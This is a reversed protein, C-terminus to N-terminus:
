RGGRNAVSKGAMAKRVETVKQVSLWSRLLYGSWKLAEGNDAYPDSSNDFNGSRSTPHVDGNNLLTGNWTGDPRRAVVEGYLDILPLKYKRAVAVFVANYARALDDKKVHPPITSLVPITGRYAQQPRGDDWLIRKVIEEYDRGVEEPKRGASADNTGLMLIVMQPKYNDLMDEVPPLNYSGELYQNTRIGSQATYSGGGPRDTYALWWGDHNWKSLIKQFDKPNLNGGSRDGQNVRMWKTTDKDEATKGKGYRAWGSYPNSYTISDGFHCVVGQEGKYHKSIERVTERWDWDEKVIGARAGHFSALLVFGALAARM